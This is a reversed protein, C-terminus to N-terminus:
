IKPPAQSNFSKKLEPYFDQSFELSFFEKQFDESIYSFSEIDSSIENQCSQCEIQPQVEISNEEIHGFSHLSISALFFLGLFTISKNNLKFRM